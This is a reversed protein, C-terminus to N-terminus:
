TMRGDNGIRWGTGAMAQQLQTRCQCAQEPHNFKNVIRDPAAPRWGVAGSLGEVDDAFEKPALLSGVILIKPFIM